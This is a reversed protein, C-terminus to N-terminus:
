RKDPNAKVTIKVFVLQLLWSVLFVLFVWAGFYTAFLDFCFIRLAVGSVIHLGFPIHVWQILRTLVHELLMCGFQHAAPTSLHFAHTYVPCHTLSHTHTRTRTRTHTHTHTRTHTHM